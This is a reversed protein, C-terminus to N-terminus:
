AIKQRRWGYALLGAAGMGLLVFTSPEPVALKAVFADYSGANPGGL